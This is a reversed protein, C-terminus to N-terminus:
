PKAEKRIERVVRQKYVARTVFEVLGDDGVWAMKGSWAPKQAAKLERRKRREEEYPSEREPKNMDCLSHTMARLLNTSKSGRDNEETIEYVFSRSGGSIDYLTTKM